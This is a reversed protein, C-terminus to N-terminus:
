GFETAAMYKGLMNLALSSVNQCPARTESLPTGIADNHETWVRERPGHAYQQHCDGGGHAQGLGM